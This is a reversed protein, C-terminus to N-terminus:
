STPYRSESGQNEYIIQIASKINWTWASSWSILSQALWYGEAFMCYRYTGFHFARQLCKQQLLLLHIPKHHFDLLEVPMIDSPSPMDHLVQSYKLILSVRLQILSLNKGKGAYHIAFEIESKKPPGFFKRTGPLMPQSPLHQLIGALAVHWHRVQNTNKQFIYSIV